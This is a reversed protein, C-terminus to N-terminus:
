KRPRRALVAATRAFLDAIRRVHAYRVASKAVASASEATKGHLRALGAPWFTRQSDLDMIHWYSM